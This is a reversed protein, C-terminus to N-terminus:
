YYHHRNMSCKVCLLAIVVVCVEEVRLHKGRGKPTTKAATMRHNTPRNTREGTIPPIVGSPAQSQNAGATTATTHTKHSIAAPPPPSIPPPRGRGYWEWCRRLTRWVNWSLEAFTRHFNFLETFTGNYNPLLEALTKHFKRSLETFNGRFNRSLENFTSFNRSLEAFPGGFDREM